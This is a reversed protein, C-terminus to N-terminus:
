VNYKVRAKLKDPKFQSEVLKKPVGITETFWEAIGDIAKQLQKGSTIEESEFAGKSITTPIGYSKGRSSVRLQVSGPTKGNKVRLFIKDTEDFLIDQGSKVKYRTNCIMDQTRRAIQTALDPQHRFSETNVLKALKKGTGPDTIKRVNSVTLHHLGLPKPLPLSM